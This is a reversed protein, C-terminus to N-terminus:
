HAVGVKKKSLKIKGMDDIALIKVKFRDGVKVISHVDKVFEDSMESVHVLGSVGPAIDVFAGFDVVNVVEGDYIQGVEPEFAYSDVIRKAEKVSEEEVGFIYVTGDEEIEIEAGTSESLGKINKGGPGILEGIKSVPIKVKEVRPATDALKARPTAIAADMKDLILMRAEHSQAIAKEFVELTLGKSKTDMQIATVGDRTGAMKFDMFGYFDEVDRLDTLIVFNSPNEEDMVLGMAVGAVQKKIPVGADMLALSSGCISGMSSSGCESMIESTLVITYPFEDKSPLVPAMAKEALAGHGIERRGPMYKFRGSEGFVFPGDSYFHMYSRNEEGTMDELVQARKITGLTAVTLVQTLERTFLGSGHVKPLLGVRTDIERIDTLKRGDVRTNEEKVIRRLEKKAVKEYAEKVQLETYKEDACFEAVLKELTAKNNAKYTATVTCSKLNANIEALYKDHIADILEHPLAFSLYPAKEVEVLAAFKKQADIWPKMLEQGYKMAELIKDEKLENSNADFNTFREGDGALVMNLMEKNDRDVHNYLSAFASDKMGVRVGAIPTSFPLKSILLAASVANLALLVPDNKEDFALVEVIITVENRYDSPFMPRLSRDIIRARLIAEDSPFRERKVFRSSSILGNAYLKEVYEVSMPFFDSNPLPDGANVTALVVTDGMQALVASQSKRALLGTSFSAKRGEIEFEHKKENFLM